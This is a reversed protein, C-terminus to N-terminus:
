KGARAKAKTALRRKAAAELQTELGKTRTVFWTWLGLWARAATEDLVDHADLPMGASGHRRWKGPLRGVLAVQLTRTTDYTLDRDSWGLTPIRDVNCAQAAAVVAGAPVKWKRGLAVADKAIATARVALELHRERSLRSALAQAATRKKAATSAKPAAADKGDAKAKAAAAKERAVRERDKREQELQGLQGDVWGRVTRSSPTEWGGGRHKIWAIVTGLQHPHNALRGLERGHAATVIEEAVLKHAAPPLDLLALMSSVTGQVIGLSTALQEQTEGTEKLYRAYAQARQLPNLDERGANETLQVKLAARDDMPRVIVPVVKLGAVKAAALRRHGAIVQLAAGVPRVLLPTVVGQAAISEALEAISEKTITGRPNAPHPTLSAIPVERYALEQAAQTTTM